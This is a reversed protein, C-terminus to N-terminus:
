KEGTEPKKGVERRLKRAKQDARNVKEYGLEKLAKMADDNTINISNNLTVEVSPRDTMGYHTILQMRAGQFSERNMSAQATEEYLKLKAEKIYYAYTGPKDEADPDKRKEEALKHALRRPDNYGLYLTLGMVTPIKRDRYIPAGKYMVPKGNNDLMIEGRGSEFYEDMKKRMEEPNKFRSKRNETMPKGGGEQKREVFFLGDIGSPSKM